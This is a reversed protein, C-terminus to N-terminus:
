YFVKSIIQVTKLVMVLLFYGLFMNKSEDDLEEISLDTDIDTTGIAATAESHRNPIVKAETSKRSSQKAHEM